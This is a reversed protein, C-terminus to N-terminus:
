RLSLIRLFVLLGSGGIALVTGAAYLSWGPRLFLRRPTREWFPAVLFLLPDSRWYRLGAVAM